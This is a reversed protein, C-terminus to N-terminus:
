GSHLASGRRPKGSGRADKRSCGIAPDGGPGTRSGVTVASATVTKGGGFWLASHDAACVGQPTHWPMGCCSWRWHRGRDVLRPRALARRGSQFVPSEHQQASRLSRAFDGRCRAATAEPRERPMTQPSAVEASVTATEESGSRSNSGNAARAGQSTQKAIPLMTRGGGWHRGRITMRPRASTPRGHEPM